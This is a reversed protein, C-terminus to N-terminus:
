VGQFTVVGFEGDEDGVVAVDLLEVAEPEAAVSGGVDDGPALAFAGGQGRGEEAVEDDGDLGGGALGLLAAQGEILFEAAEEGVAEEMEEAIVVDAAPPLRAAVFLSPSRAKVTRLSSEHFIERYM